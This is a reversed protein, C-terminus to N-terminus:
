KAAFFVPLALALGVVGAGMTVSHNFKTMPVLPMNYMQTYLGALSPQELVRVGVEHFVGVLPFSLLKFIGGFILGAGAQIRFVFLCLIVLVAQLSLAPSLGLIMGCAIGAAIQNEGTASNLVKIFQFIQKLLMAM